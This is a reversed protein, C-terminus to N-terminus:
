WSYVIMCNTLICICDFVIQDDLGSGQPLFVNSSTAIILSTPSKIHLVHLVNLALMFIQEMDAIGGTPRVSRMAAVILLMSTKM